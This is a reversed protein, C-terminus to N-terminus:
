KLGSELTYKKSELLLIQNKNHEYLNVVL